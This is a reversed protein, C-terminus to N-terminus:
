SMKILDDSASCATIMICLIKGALLMGTDGGQGTCIPQRQLKLSIPLQPIHHHGAVYCAEPFLAFNWM